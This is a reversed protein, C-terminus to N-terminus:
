TVPSDVFRVTLEVVLPAGLLATEQCVCVCVSADPTVTESETGPLQTLYLATIPCILPYSHNFGAFAFMCVNWGVPFTHM